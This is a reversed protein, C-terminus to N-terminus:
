EVRRGTYVDFTVHEDCEWCEVMVHRDDVWKPWVFRGGCTCKERQLFSTDWKRRYLDHNADLKFRDYVDVGLKKCEHMFYLRGKQVRSYYQEGQTDFSVRPNVVRWLLQEGCDECMNLAYNGVMENLRQFEESYIKDFRESDITFGSIYANRDTGDYLVDHKILVRRAFRRLLAEDQFPDQNARLKNIYLFLDEDDIYGKVLWYHRVGNWAIDLVKENM